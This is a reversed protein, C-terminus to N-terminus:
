EGLRLHFLLDARKAVRGRHPHCPAWWTKRKNLKFRHLLCLCADISHVVNAKASLVDRCLKSLILPALRWWGVSSWTRPRDTAVAADLMTGHQFVQWGVVRPALELVLHSADAVDDVRVHVSITVPAHVARLTSGGERAAGREWVGGRV